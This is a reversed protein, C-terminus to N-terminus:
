PRPEQDDCDPRNDRYPLGSKTRWIAAIDQATALGTYGLGFAMAMMFVSEVITRNVMTDASDKLDWIMYLSFLIVGIIIWRRWSWSPEGTKYAM